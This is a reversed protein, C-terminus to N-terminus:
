TAELARRFLFSMFYNGKLLEEESLTALIKTQARGKVTNNSLMYCFADRKLLREHEKDNRQIALEESRYWAIPMISETPLLRYKGAYEAVAKELSKAGLDGWEISRGSRVHECAHKYYATIVVSGAKAAMFNCSISGQPERYGVFSAQEVMELIPALSHLVICDPDVYIGGYYRLLYSSIFDSKHQVAIADINIDRDFMFLEDFAGRDLLRVHQNHALVTKCCLAIYDPMRGEWYM